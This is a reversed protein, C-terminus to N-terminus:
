KIKEFVESLPIEGNETFIAIDKLYVLKDSSFVPIRKGDSLSEIVMLNKGQSVMKYLGPKGSVYLIEKLM